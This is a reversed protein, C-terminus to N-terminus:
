QCSKSIYDLFLSAVREKQEVIHTKSFTIFQRRLRSLEPLSLAKTFRFKNNGEEAFPVVLEQGPLALRQAQYLFQVVEQTIRDLEHLFNTAALPATTTSQNEKLAIGEVLWDYIEDLPIEVHRPAPRDLDQSVDDCETMDSGEQKGVQIHFLPTDWRQSAPKEYRLILEHIKEDTYREEVPKQQNLHKCANETGDIQMVAYTTKALKGVLFLEYRFGKIYNLGDCIVITNRSIAQQLQSRLYSRFEKEQLANNYAARDFLHYDGERIISVERGKDKFYAAVRDVITSKGAAPYGTVLLLPM